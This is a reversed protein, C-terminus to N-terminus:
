LPSELTEMRAYRIVRTRRWKRVGLVVGAILIVLFAAVGIGVGIWINTSYHEPPIGSVTVNFIIENSGKFNNAVCAFIGTNNLQLGQVTLSSNQDSYKTRNKPLPDGSLVAYTVAPEPIGEAKCNVTFDEGIHKEIIADNSTNVSPLTCGRLDNDDIDILSVNVVGEPGQCVIEYTANAASLWHKLGYMSCDCMWPNGGTKVVVGEHPLCSFIEAPLTVLDNNRMDIYTVHILDRFAGPSITKINSANIHLAAVSGLYRFSNEDVTKMNNGELDLQVLSDLGRFAGDKIEIINSKRAYLYQLSSIKFTDTQLTGINNNDLVITALTQSVPTWDICEICSINNDSLDLEKLSPLGQLTMSKLSAPDSTVNKLNLNQLKGLHRFADSIVLHPNNALDLFELNDLDQFANENIEGLRNQQLDLRGLNLLGLFINDPLEDINNFGLDMEKLHECGLFLDKGLKKSGISNQHLNLSQLQELGKFCNDPLTSIWNMQLDIRKLLSRSTFVGGVITSINCESLFLETINPLHSLYDARLERIDGKLVLIATDNPLNRFTADALINPVYKTCEVLKREKCSCQNPIMTPCQGAPDIAVNVLIEVQAESIFNVAKCTFKGAEEPLIYMFILRQNGDSFMAREGSLIQSGNPMYFTVTPKPNGSVSCTLSANNGFLVIQDGDTEITSPACGLNVDKLHQGKLSKPSACVIDMTVNEKVIWQKTQYLSSCNCVWPNDDLVISVRMVDNFTDPTVTQFRNNTLNLTQLGPLGKFTNPAVSSISCGVCSLLRLSPISSNTLPPLTRFTNGGLYLEELEDLGDFTGLPYSVWQNVNLSLSRLNPLSSFMKAKLPYINNGSLDLIELTKSVATWNFCDASVCLIDNLSLDLHRLSTLHTLFTPPFVQSTMVSRILLSELSQLDIFAEHHWKAGHNESLDLFTLYKLGRFEDQTLYNLKNKSLKLVKLSQLPLFTGNNLRSIFNNSIDLTELSVCFKFTDIAPADIQNQNLNLLKLAVLPSFAGSKIESIYNNSADFNELKDCGKFIDKRITMLKNNSVDLSVLSTIPQFVGVPLGTGISGFFNHSLSLLTVNQLGKFADLPLSTVSAKELKLESMASFKSFPKSMESIASLDGSLSLKTVNVPIHNLIM